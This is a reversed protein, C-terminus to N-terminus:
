KDNDTKESGQPRGPQGSEWNSLLKLGFHPAAARMRAIEQPSPSSPQEDKLRPRGGAAVFREFGSPVCLILYQSPRDSVNKLQHPIGRPLFVVEGQKLTRAEGAILVQMEGALVYLTEDENAHVHIPTGSQGLSSNEFLCYSNDTESAALLQKMLVGAFIFEPHAPAVM